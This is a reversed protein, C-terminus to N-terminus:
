DSDINEGAFLVTKFPFEIYTSDECLLSAATIIKTREDQDAVKLQDLDTEDVNSFLELTEFGNIHFTAFLHQFLTNNNYFHVNFQYILLCYYSSKDYIM